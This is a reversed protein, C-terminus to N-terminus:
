AFPNSDDGFPNSDAAPTETVSEADNAFPDVYPESSAVTTASVKSPDLKKLEPIKFDGNKIADASHVSAIYSNVYVKGNKGFVEKSAFVVGFIKNKLKNEDFDWVFGKNSKEVSTIFGKFFPLSKESYSRWLTGANDWYKTENKNNDYKSQFFNKHEGQCIDVELKLCKKDPFDQVTKVGVIYGGDPLRFNGGNNEQIKDFDKIKKM